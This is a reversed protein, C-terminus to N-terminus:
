PTNQTFKSSSISITKLQLKQMYDITIDAMVLQQKLISYKPEYGGTAKVCSHQDSPPGSKAM